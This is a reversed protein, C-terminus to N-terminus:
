ATNIRIRHKTEHHTVFCANSYCCTEQPVTQNCFLSVLSFTWMLILFDSSEALKFSVKNSMRPAAHTSIQARNKKKKNKKKKQTVIKCAFKHMCILKTEFIAATSPMHKSKLVM